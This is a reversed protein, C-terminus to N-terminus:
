DRVNNQTLKMKDKCSGKRRPPNSCKEAWNSSSSKM